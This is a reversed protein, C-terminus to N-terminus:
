SDVFEAGFPNYDPIEEVTFKHSGEFGLHWKVEINFQAGEAL